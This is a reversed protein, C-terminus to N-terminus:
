QIARVPADKFGNNSISAEQINTRKSLIRIGRWKKMGKRVGHVM